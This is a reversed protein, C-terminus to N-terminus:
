HLGLLLNTMKSQPTVAMLQKYYTSQKFERNAKKVYDEFDNKHIEPFLHCDNYPLHLWDLVQRFGLKDLCYAWQKPHTKKLLQFRNPCEELHMGFCCFMCGTHEYHDYVSPIPLNHQKVYEKVDEHLWFAMPRSCPMKGNFNNCGYQLYNMLRLKSDSALIGTMMVLNNQKHFDHVPRKKIYYCCKDSILFPAGLLFLWKDKLRSQKNDLQGLRLAKTLDATPEKQRIDHIQRSVEKSIVPYGYRRLVETFHMKPKVIFTNPLNKMFDVIEPFELGTNSFVAPVRSYLSRVIDLLVLSDRGSVSVCIQGQYHDYWERIRVETIRVKGPLALSQKQRLAYEPIM